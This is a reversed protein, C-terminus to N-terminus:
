LPLPAPPTGWSRCMSCPWCSLPGLVEAAWSICRSCNPPLAQDEPEAGKKREAVSRKGLKDKDVPEKNLPKLEALLAAELLARSCHLYVGHTQSLDNLWRQGPSQGAVM